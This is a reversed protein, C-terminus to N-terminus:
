MKKKVKFLLLFSIPQHSCPVTVFTLVFRFLMATERTEATSKLWILCTKDTANIVSFIEPNTLRFVPNKSTYLRTWNRPNEHIKKLMVTRRKIKPWPSSIYLKENNKNISRSRWLIQYLRVNRVISESWIREIVCKVGDWVHHEEALDQCCYFDEIGSKTYDPSSNNWSEYLYM